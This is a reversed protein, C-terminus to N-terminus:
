KKITDKLHHYLFKMHKVYAVLIWNCVATFLLLLGIAIQLEKEEPLLPYKHVGTLLVYKKNQITLRKFKYDIQKGPVLIDTFNGNRTSNMIDKFEQKRYPHDINYISYWCDSTHRKDPLPELNEDLLYLNNDDFRDIIDLYTYLTKKTKIFPAFETVIDREDRQRHIRADDIRHFLDIFYMCFLASLLVPILWVSRQLYHMGKTIFKVM